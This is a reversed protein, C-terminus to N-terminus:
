WPGAWRTRGKWNTANPDHVWVVRGPHIGKGEGIPAPREAKAAQGALAALAMVGAAVAVLVTYRRTKM